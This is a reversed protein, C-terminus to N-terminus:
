LSTLQQVAMKYIMPKNKALKLLLFLNNKFNPDIDSLEQVIGSLEIDENEIGNVANGIGLLKNLVPQIYPMYKEMPDEVAGIEAVESLEQELESVDANLRDNEAQLRKNEARLYGVESYLEFLKPDTTNQQMTNMGNVAISQTKNEMSFTFAILDTVTTKPRAKVKLFYIKNVLEGIAVNNFYNCLQDMLNGNDLCCIEEPSKSKRSGAYIHVSTVNKYNLLKNQLSDLGTIDTAM